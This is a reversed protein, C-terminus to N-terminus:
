IINWYISKKIPGTTETSAKQLYKQSFIALIFV